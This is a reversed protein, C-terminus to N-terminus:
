LEMLLAVIEEDERETEALMEQEFVMLWAEMLMVRAFGEDYAIRAKSMAQRLQRADADKRTLLTEFLGPGDVKKAREVAQRAAKKIVKEAAKTPAVEEALRDREAEYDERTWGFRSSHDYWGGSPQDTAAPSSGSATLTGADM